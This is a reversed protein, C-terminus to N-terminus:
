KVEDFPLNLQEPETDETLCYGLIEDGDKITQITIREELLNKGADLFIQADAPIGALLDMLQAVTM